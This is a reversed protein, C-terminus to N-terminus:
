LFVDSSLFFELGKQPNSGAVGWMIIIVVTQIQRLMMRRIMRNETTKRLKQLQFFLFVNTFFCKQCLWHFILLNHIKQHASFNHCSHKNRESEAANEM